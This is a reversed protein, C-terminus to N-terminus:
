HCLQTQSGVIGLNECVCLPSSVIGLHLYALHSSWLIPNRYEASAAFKEGCRGPLMRKLNYRFPHPPIPPYPFFTEGATAGTPTHVQGSM